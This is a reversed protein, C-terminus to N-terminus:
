KERLTSNEKKIEELTVKMDKNIKVTCELDGCKKKLNENELILQDQKELMGAILEKMCRLEEVTVIRRM